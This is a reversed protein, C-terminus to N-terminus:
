DIGNQQPSLVATQSSLVGLYDVVDSLDQNVFEGGRDSHLTGMRAWVGSRRVSVRGSCLHNNTIFRAVMFRSSMDALYLIYKFHKEEYQKLDMTVIQNFENACYLAATPKPKDKKNM